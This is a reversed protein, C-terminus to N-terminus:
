TMKLRLYSFEIKPYTWNQDKKYFYKRLKLLYIEIMNGKKEKQQKKLMFKPNELIFNVSIDALLKLNRV